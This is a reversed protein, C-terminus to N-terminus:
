RLLGTIKKFDQVEVPYNEFEVLENTYPPRNEGNMAVKLTMM